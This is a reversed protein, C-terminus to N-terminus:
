SAQESARPSRPRRPAGKKADDLQSVIRALADVLSARVRAYSKPGIDGKAHARELAVMEALLAERAEVLDNRTDDDIEGEDRHRVVHVIGSAGAIVALLVAIWRGPGKVPLGTLTIEITQAGSESRSVQRETVLLHKGDRTVKQPDPFNAVKLAMARSSEAMVRMQAVRPPLEITLTQKENGDLPVHYRFDMDNRGPGFTGRLAAGHDKVEEVRAENMSDQKNFAKFGDPLKFAVDPVWAVEGLNFVSLLQEVQIVDDRLSIYVVGQMGASLEEINASADFVHLVARKGAKDNLPFRPLAYQGGARASSIRYTTSTGIMLNDIRLTGDDGVERSTIREPKEGKAVTNFLESLSFKAHPIPRDQSDRLSVVISGVPLAPDDQSGDPPAQYFRPDAAHAGPAGHPNPPADEEDDSGDNPMAPHGSPLEEPHGPPLPAAVGKPDVPRAGKPDVAKEEPKADSKPAVKASAAPKAAQGLAAGPMAAGILAAIALSLLARSRRRM